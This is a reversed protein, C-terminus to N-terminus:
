PIVFPIELHIVVFAEGEYFHNHDDDEDADDGCYDGNGQRM